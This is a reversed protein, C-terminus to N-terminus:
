RTGELMPVLQDIAYPISLVTNFSLAAGIDPDQYPVFLDRNERSVALKTYLPEAELQDEVEPGAVLWVLRDAELLDLREYSFDAVNQEGVAAVFPEPATFGMERLFVMKPDNPSFASFTGPDYPEAVVATKGQWEPHAARVEAFRQDIGSILREAEASRGLAKGIARTMEQWPAQYDEHGKPQAVVPALQSLTDYQEKKMGSYQAIILDPELAAIREVNFEDREGVVEPPADGWLGKTWSWKGFPREKFWDVAGVPRVGLALVADQDSLGLTVVRTPEAEITTVGYKHEVTVPFTDTAPTKPEDQATPEVSGGCGALVLALVLGLLAVLPRMLTRPNPSM